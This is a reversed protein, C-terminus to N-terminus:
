KWYSNKYELYYHLWRKRLQLFRKFNKDLKCDMPKVIKKRQWLLNTEKIFDNNECYKKIIGKPVFTLLVEDELIRKELKKNLILDDVMIEILNCGLPTLYYSCRGQRANIELVKFKKDRADYKMDIEAFGKYKINEMFKIINDIQSKVDGDYTNFGNILVAANGVMSKTREQMGIQAFSVVKCKSNKNLYVVSDFLYSDDGPIFEQIILKDDYDSNKILNLVNKLEEQNNIKYIKNKGEFSIHNYKVVNAPKIVLPFKIKISSIKDKKLDFYITQPFSLNSNEYTKYFNEKNTLTKIIDIGPLNYILNKELKNNNKSILETYSENTSVLLIKKDNNKKAYTNITNIFDKENWLNKEYEITLINSFRTFALRRQAILHPKIKYAEYCCRAMYYANADSGLILVLFDM